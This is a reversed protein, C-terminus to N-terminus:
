LLGSVSKTMKQPIIGSKCQRDDKYNSTSHLVTYVFKDFFHQINWKYFLVKRQAKSYAFFALDEVELVKAAQYNM